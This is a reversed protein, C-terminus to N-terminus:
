RRVIVTRVRQAGDHRLRVFYVGAPVPAGLNSGLSWDLRHSGASRIGRDLRAVERGTVDHVTLVVEGDRPLVYEITTLRDTPNRGLLRLDFVLTRKPESVTVTAGCGPGRAGIVGCTSANALLPSDAGLNVDDNALDCFGPDVSVDNEGGGDGGANGFWDNCWLSPGGAQLAAGGNGYAINNSIRPCYPPDVDSCDSSIVGVGQNLYSTNHAIECEGNQGVVIGHGGCRGVVNGLVRCTGWGSCRIGTGTSRLVVNSQLLHNQGTTGIGTGGCSDISNGIITSNGNQVSVVIGDACRRIINGRVWVEYDWVAAEIAPGRCDDILNGDIRGGFGGWHIGFPGGRILNNVIATGGSLDLSRIGASDGEVTNGRAILGYLTDFAIEGRATSTDVVGSRAFLSIGQAFRCRRFWVYGDYDGGWVPGEFQCETFDNDPAGYAIHVAGTFRLGLVTIPLGCRNADVLLGQLVPAAEPALGAEALLVVGGRCRIVPSEAYVGKRVVITDGPADLAEQITPFDDPVVHRSAGAASPIMLLILLAVAIHRATM